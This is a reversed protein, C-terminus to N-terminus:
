WQLELGTVDEWVIYGTIGYAAGWAQAFHEAGADWDDQLAARVFAELDDGGDGEPDIYVTYPVERVRARKENSVRIRVWIHTVGVGSRSIEHLAAPVTGPVKESGLRSALEALWAPRARRREAGSTQYRQLRRMFSRYATTGPVYDLTEAIDRNSLGLEDRVDELTLEAGAEFPQTALEAVAGRLEQGPDAM